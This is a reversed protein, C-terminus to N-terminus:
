AKAADYIGNVKNVKLEYSITNHSRHLEIAIYRASRGNNHLCEIIVREEKSLHGKKKEM